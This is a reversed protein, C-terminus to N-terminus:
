QQNNATVFLWCFACNKIVEFLRCYLKFFLDCFLVNILHLKVCILCQSPYCMCLFIVIYMRNINTKKRCNDCSVLIATFIPIYRLRQLNRVETWANPCFYFSIKTKELGVKAEATRLEICPWRFQPPCMYESIRKCRDTTKGTGKFQWQLNKLSMHGETQEACAYCVSQM